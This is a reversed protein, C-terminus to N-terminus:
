DKALLEIMELNLITREKCKGDCSVIEQWAQKIKDSKEQVGDNVYKVAKSFEVVNDTGWYRDATLLQVILNGNEFGYKTGELSVTAIMDFFRDAECDFNALCLTLTEWREELASIRSKAVLEDIETILTAAKVLDKQNKYLEILDLILEKFYSSNLNKEDANSESIRGEKSYGDFGGGSIKKDDPTGIFVGVPAPPQSTGNRGLKGIIFIGLMLLLVVLIFYKLKRM